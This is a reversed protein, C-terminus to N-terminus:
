DFLGALRLDHEIITGLARSSVCGRAAFEKLLDEKKNAVFAKIVALRSNEHEKLSIEPKIPAPPKKTDKERNIRAAAQEYSETGRAQKEIESMPVGLIMKEKPKTTRKPKEGEVGESSKKESFTFTLHTVKRGTKRQEWRVQYSTLENIEIVAPDLVYLKFDKIASYKNGLELCKRLWEIEIERKGATKWQQILEFLRFSYISSFKGVEQLQYKTFETTLQSIYPLLHHAFFLRIKGENPIYAVTSIWHTKLQTVKKEDTFPNNIIVIKNLLLEAAAKLDRYENKTEVGTLNILDTASVEFGQSAELTQRSDIQSMAILLIRQENTTLNYSAEIVRNSKVVTQIQNKM